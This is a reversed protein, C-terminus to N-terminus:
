APEKRRLLGILGLQLGFGRPLAICATDNDTDSVEKGSHCIQWAQRGIKDTIQWFQCAPM